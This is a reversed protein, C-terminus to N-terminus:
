LVFRWVRQVLDSFPRLFAGNSCMTKRILIEFRCRVNARAITLLKETQEILPEDSIGHLILSIGRLSHFDLWIEMTFSNLIFFTKHIFAYSLTFFSCKQRSAHNFHM